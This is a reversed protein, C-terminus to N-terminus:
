SSGLENSRTRRWFLTADGRMCDRLLREYAERMPTRFARAYSFDMTVAASRIEEGPQKCAFRLTIGEDPQIGLTLVNPEMLCADDRGFLCFPIARFHIAIETRRTALRKGARVYFPV